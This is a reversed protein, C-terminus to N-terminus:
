NTQNSFGQRKIREVLRLFLFYIFIKILVLNLIIYKNLIENPQSIMDNKVDNNNNNNNMDIDIPNIPERRNDENNIIIINGNNFNSQISNSNSSGSSSSSIISDSIFIQNSKMPNYEFLTALTCCFFMIIGITLFLKVKNNDKTTTTTTTTSAAIFLLSPWIYCILSGTTAGTLSLVFEMNPVLIATLSISTILFYTLRKFRTEPIFYDSENNENNNNNNNNNDQQITDFLLTNLSNRCPYIMYPFGSLVCVILGFLVIQSMFSDPIMTIINGSIITDHFALSGFLGVSLYAMFAIFMSTDMLHILNNEKNTYQQKLENCVVFIVTQCSFSICFIPFCKFLGSMKWLKIQKLDNLDYKTLSLWMLYFGFFLYFLIAFISINSLKELKTSLSLPLSVLITFIILFIPHSNNFLDISLLKTLFKPGADCITQQYTVLSGYLLLIISIEMTLKGAVGFLKFALLELNRTNKLEATKFLLKCSYSTMIGSIALLFTAL